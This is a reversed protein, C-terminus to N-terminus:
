PAAHAARAARPDRVAGEHPGLSAAAAHGCGMGLLGRTEMPLATHRHTSFRERRVYPAAAIASEADGRIATLTLACNTAHEEFLLTAGSESAARDMVVPLAEIDVGILDLADEAIAASEAVVFAIPEGVYRVRGDALVPQEFRALDANREMRIAIKPVSAGLDRATYVAHVGPLAKAAATDVSRLRGHAVSSRYIAAHLVGPPNLDDVYCGRGTIFRLDEIREIAKGVYPERATM